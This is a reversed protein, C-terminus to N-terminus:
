RTPQVLDLEAVQPIAGGVQRLELLASLLDQARDLLLPLQIRLQPRPDFRRLGLLRELIEIERVTRLPTSTGRDRPLPTQLRQRLQDPRPLRIVRRYLGCGGGVHIRLLLDRRDLARELTRA